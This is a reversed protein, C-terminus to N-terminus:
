VVNKLTDGTAWPRDTRPRNANLFDVLTAITPCKPTTVTTVAEHTGTDPPLVATTVAETNASYDCKTCRM